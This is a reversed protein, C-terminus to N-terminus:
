MFCKKRARLALEADDRNLGLDSKARSLQGRWKM